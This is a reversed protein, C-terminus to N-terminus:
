EDYKSLVIMKILEDKIILTAKCDDENYDIIRQLKVPDEDKLYENFWQISLAGSPSIDRWKFGLYRAIEKLSYSYLPWDTKSSIIKYLDVAHVENFLDEVEHEQLVDPYQKQMRKYTTVEHSSYYYLCYDDQPLSHVYMIFQGWTEKEADRTFEKAVFAHFPQEKGNIREYVGHLYVFGQTPDDEIDFFLEYQVRPFIIPEFLIPKKLSTKVFARRKYSELRSKGIDRLFTKDSKRDLLSQIDITCLDSVSEIGLDKVITDRYSRGIYFLTTLDNKEDCWKKCSTYWPCLKCTGILAPDNRRKNEILLAVENKVDQYMQWWTQKNRVGISTDLDYIVEKSDIDFIQGVHKNAFGLAILVEAYLALQAAYHKKPKGTEGEEDVGELGRGSKIDIPLYMGDKKRLLDPEGALNEWRIYGHYILPVGVKMAQITKRFQDEKNPSSLDLLLGIGKIVEKERLVGKEWLLQIFPNPEPNREKLPGYIDRWVRHPCQFFDYLKSATVVSTM